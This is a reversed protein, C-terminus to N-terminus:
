VHTDPERNGQLRIGIIQYAPPRGIPVEYLKAEPHRSRLRKAAMSPNPDVEYDRSDTDIVVSKGWNASEPQERIEAYVEQGAAIIEADNQAGTPTM